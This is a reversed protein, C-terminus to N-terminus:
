IVCAFIVSVTLWLAGQCGVRSTKSDLRIVLYNLELQARVRLNNLIQITKSRYDAGMVQVFTLSFCLKFSAKFGTVLSM